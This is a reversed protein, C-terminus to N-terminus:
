PGPPPHPPKDHQAPTAPVAPVAPTAPSGPGNPVAPTAPVAPIAPTAAAAPRSLQNLAATAQEHAIGQANMRGLAHDFGFTRGVPNSGPGAALSAQGFAAALLAATILSSSSKMDPNGKFFNSDIQIL